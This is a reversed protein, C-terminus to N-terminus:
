NPIERVKLAYFPREIAVRISSKKHLDPIRYKFADFFAVLTRDAAQQEGDRIMKRLGQVIDSMTGMTYRLSIFRPRSHTGTAHLCSTIADHLGFSHSKILRSSNPHQGADLDAAFLTFSQTRNTRSTAGPYHMPM